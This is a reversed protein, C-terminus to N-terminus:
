GSGGALAPRAALLAEEVAARVAVIRSARRQDRHVIVWLESPPIEGPQDLRVLRRDAGGVFCPLVAIGTGEAAAAALASTSSARLLVPAAPFKRRLWETESGAIPDTWLLLDAEGRRAARAARRSAYAGYAVSGVRRGSSTPEGPALLRVAVDAEGRALSVARPELALEISLGPHRGALASLAPALIRSGLAETATVRVKGAVRRERGALEREIALAAAEMEEARAAVARAADTPALGGASRMLLRTQLRAELLALRRGATTRDMGLQRAAAGLSGARCLALVVRLDDWSM